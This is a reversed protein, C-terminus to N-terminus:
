RSRRHARADRDEGAARRVAEVIQQEGMLEALEAAIEAEHDRVVVLERRHRLVEAHAELVHGDVRLVAGGGLGRLLAEEVLHLM